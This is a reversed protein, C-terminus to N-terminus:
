IRQLGNWGAPIRSRLRAKERKMSAGWAHGSGRAPDVAIKSALFKSRDPDFGLKMLINELDRELAEADPYRSRTISNLKEEPISSRAKFGDYWIDWPQLDRGLRKRILEGTQKLQPASLFEHFLAEVEEQPIQMDGSFSRKIATNLVPHYRDFDKLARFNNIIQQYRHNQEAPVEKPEGNVTVTNEFPQWNAEGSNIVAAPISQDIIRQMVQYIIEQKELGNQTNAYNAKIEDRLNWHSLLIMKEPFLTQGNKGLLSGMYINYEAIYADAEASVAASKQVLEPPVRSSFVDGMRAYAWELDSWNRGLENKEETSYFPFNLAVLFAIKNNYFDNSMHAGASYASFLHDVRHLQGTQLDVNQRLEITLQTFHGSLSEFYGSIKNFVVQKEQQDGIFNESCFTIFEDDSGDSERWLSAAHLVGKEVDKINVEPNKEKVARIANNTQEEPITTSRTIMKNTKQQCNLLLVAIMCLLFLQKM